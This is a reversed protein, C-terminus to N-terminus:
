VALFAKVKKFGKRYLKVAQTFNEQQHAAVARAYFEEARAAEKPHQAVLDDLTCRLFAAVSDAMLVRIPGLQLLVM